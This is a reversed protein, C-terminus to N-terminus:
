LYGMLYRIAPNNERLVETYLAHQVKAQLSPAITDFFENFDDQKRKTGQTQFLYKRVAHSDHESMEIATMVGNAEDLQEQM